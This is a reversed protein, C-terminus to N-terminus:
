PVGGTVADLEAQAEEADLDNREVRAQNRRRLLDDIRRRLAERKRAHEIRARALQPTEPRGLPWALRLWGEVSSAGLRADPGDPITGTYADFGLRLTPLLAACRERAISPPARDLGAQAEARRVLALDAAEVPHPAVLSLTTAILLAARLHDDGDPRSVTLSRLM